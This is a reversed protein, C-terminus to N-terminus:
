ENKDDEFYKIVYNYIIQSFGYVELTGKWIQEMEEQFTHVWLFYLWWVVISLALVIWKAKIWHNKAIQTIVSVWLWIILELM